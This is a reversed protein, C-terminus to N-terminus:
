NNELEKVRAELEQIAKTLIPVMKEYTIGYHDQDVIRDVVLNTKDAVDYGFSKEIVEVEQALFGLTLEPLKNTGDPTRDEYDSRKDWRYTVPNLQKVFELGLDLPNVDTKDRADSNVTWSIQIRATTHSENGMHIQNSGSTIGAISQYPSQYGTRGANQGFLLNNSGSTVNYGTADGMAINSGGSSLNYLAAYGYAFNRSGTSCGGLAEVGFAANNTGSSIANMTTSNGMRINNASGHQTFNFQLGDLVSTSAPNTYYNTNNQDYFIPARSSSISYSHGNIDWGGVTQASTTNYFHFGSAGVLQSTTRLGVYWEASTNKYNWMAELSANSHIQPYQHNTTSYIKLSSGASSVTTNIQVGKLLSSTAPNVYYATDNSDYFIPARVDTNNYLTGRTDIAYGPDGGGLGGWDGGIGVYGNNKFTMMSTGQYGAIGHHPNYNSNGQSSDSYGFFFHEGDGSSGHVWQRAGSGNHTYQITPGHNTNSTVTHNLTLAPYQGTVYILPRVNTDQLTYPASISQQGLILQNGYTSGTGGWINMQGALSASSDGHYFYNTNNSDYFIPARMDAASYQTGATWFYGSYNSLLWGAYANTNIGAYSSPNIFNTNTGNRFGIFEAGITTYSGFVTGTIPENMWFLGWNTANEQFLWSNAESVTHKIIVNGNAANTQIGGAIKLSTTTSNPDTYYATNNKDYFVPARMDVDSRLTVTSLVQDGYVRFLHDASWHGISVYNNNSGSAAWNYGIYGSQKTTGEKGIVFINTQGATMNPTFLEGTHMFTSTSPNDIELAAANATGTGQLKLRYFVSQSTPYAYYATNSSDYFIPARMSGNSLAYGGNDMLVNGGSLRMQWTNNGGLYLEDGAGAKIQSANTGAAVLSIISNANVNFTATTLVSNGGPDLYYGTNDSDYFIPARSSGPSYTYTTEIVFEDNSGGTTFTFTENSNHYRIRGAYDTGDGKSFDIWSGFSSNTSALDIYAYASAYQGIAAGSGTRSNLATNTGTFDGFGSITGDVQVNGSFTANQSTDLVLATNPTISTGGSFFRLEDQSKIYMKKSTGTNYVYTAGAWNGNTYGSGISGVIIKDDNDNLIHMEGYGGADTDTNKLKVM